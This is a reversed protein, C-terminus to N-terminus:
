GESPQDDDVIMKDRKESRKEGGFTGEMDNYGVKRKLTPLVSPPGPREGLNVTFGEDLLALSRLVTLMRRRGAKVPIVVFSLQVQIIDGVQFMQPECAQFKRQGDSDKHMAFYEVYNDETHIHDSKMEVPGNVDKLPTLYCNSIDLSAHTSQTPSWSDLIGKSFTASGLGTLSINQQLYKFRHAPIRPKKYIPPLDKSLIIGQVTFVAEELVPSSNRKLLCWTIPNGVEQITFKDSFTDPGKFLTALRDDDEADDREVASQELANRAGAQNYNKNLM